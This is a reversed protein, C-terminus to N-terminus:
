FRSGPQKLFELEEPTSRRGLAQNRHPFRGFRRIIDRHKEAYRRIEDFEPGATKVVDAFLECCRDQLELSEGHELPLYFFMRENPALGRDHGLALGDLCWRQALPDHEFAHPDNRFLNRSFQDVLIILALRSRPEKEWGKLEGRIAQERLAAFRQRIEADFAPDARFWRRSIAEPVAIPDDGFWFELVENAAELM